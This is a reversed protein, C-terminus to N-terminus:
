TKWHQQIVGYDSMVMHYMQGPESGVRNQRWNERGFRNRSGCALGLLMQGVEYWDVVDVHWWAWLDSYLQLCLMTFNLEVVQNNSEGGLIFVYFTGMIGLLVAGDQKGSATLLTSDGEEGWIYKKGGCSTCDTSPPAVSRDPVISSNVSSFCINTM